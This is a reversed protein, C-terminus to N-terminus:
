YGQAMAWKEIQDRVNAPVQFDDGFQDTLCGTGLLCELSASGRKNSIFCQTTEGDNEFEVTYGSITTTKTTYNSMNTTTKTKTKNSVDKLLVWGSRNLLFFRETLRM